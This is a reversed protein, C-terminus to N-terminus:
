GAVRLMEAERRGWSRQWKTTPKRYKRHLRIMGTLNGLSIDDWIDHWAVDWTTGKVWTIGHADACWITLRDCAYHPGVLDILDQSIEVVDIHEVEPKALAAKLAVGLGLGNILVRGEAMQVFPLLALAEAPTDAMIPKNWVLSSPKRLLRTYNGPPIQKGQMALTIIERDIEPVEFREIIWDQSECEPIDVKYEEWRFKEAGPM